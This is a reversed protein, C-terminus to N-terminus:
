QVPQGNPSSRVSLLVSTMHSAQTTATATSPRRRSGASRTARHVTTAAAAHHDGDVEDGVAEAAALEVVPLDLAAAGRLVRDRRPALGPRLRPSRRASTRVEAHGLGRAGALSGPLMIEWYYHKGSPDPMAAVLWALLLGAALGVAIGVPVSSVKRAVFGAIVGVLMGKVTSGIIIGVIQPAVEPASLLASLGDFVGLVGGVVLGLLPKNM